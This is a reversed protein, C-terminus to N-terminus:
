RFSEINENSSAIKILSVVIVVICLAVFVYYPCDNIWRQHIVLRASNLFYATHYLLVLHFLRWLFLFLLALLTEKPQKYCQSGDINKMWDPINEPSEFTITQGFIRVELDGKQPAKQGSFGINKYIQWEQL